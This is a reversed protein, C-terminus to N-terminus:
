GRASARRHKCKELLLKINQTQTHTRSHTPPRPSRPPNGCHLSIWRIVDRLFYAFLYILSSSPPLYHVGCLSILASAKLSVAYLSNMLARQADAAFEINYTDDELEWHTMYLELTVGQSLPERASWPKKKKGGRIIECDLLQRARTHSAGNKGCCFAVLAFRHTVNKGGFMLLTRRLWLALNPFDAVRQKTQQCRHNVNYLLWM